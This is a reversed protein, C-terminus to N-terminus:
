IMSITQKMTSTLLIILLSQVKIGILYINEGRKRMMGKCQCIAHAVILTYFGVKDTISGITYTHVHVHFLPQPTACTHM